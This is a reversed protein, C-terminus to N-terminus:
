NDNKKEVFLLRNKILMDVIIVKQGEKITMWRKPACAMWVNDKVRVKGPCTGTIESLAIGEARWLRYDWQFIKNLIVFFIYAGFFKGLLDGFKMVYFMVENMMKEGCVFTKKKYGCCFNL